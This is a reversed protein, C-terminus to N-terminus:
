ATGQVVHQFLQLQGLMVCGLPIVLLVSYLDGALAWFWMRVIDLKSTQICAKHRVAPRKARRCQDPAM